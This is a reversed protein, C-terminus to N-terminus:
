GILFGSSNLLESDNFINEFSFVCSRSEIKTYVKTIFTKQVSIYIWACQLLTKLCYGTVHFFWIVGNSLFLLPSKNGGYFFMSALLLFWVVAASISCYLIFLCLAILNLLHGNTIVLMLVYKSLSSRTYITSHSFATHTHRHTIACAPAGLLIPVMNLVHRWHPPRQFYDYYSSITRKTYRAM